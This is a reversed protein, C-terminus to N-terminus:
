SGSAHQPEDVPLCTPGEGTASAMRHLVASHPAVVIADDAEGGGVYTADAILSYAPDPGPPWLLTVAAAREANARTRRGVPIALRDGDIRVTTSVVHPTGDENVTVVFATHGHEAIRDRLADLDVPLSVPALTPDERALPM